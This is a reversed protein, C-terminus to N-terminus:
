LAKIRMHMGWVILTYVDPLVVMDRVTNRLENM